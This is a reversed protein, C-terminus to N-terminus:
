CRTARVAPLRRRRRPPLRDPQRHLLHRDVLAGPEPQRDLLGPPADAGAVRTSRKRGPCARRSRSGNTWCWRITRSLAAEFAALAQAPRPRGTIRAGARRARGRPRDHQDGRRFQGRRLRPHRRRLALYDLLANRLARRGASAADPSFPATAPSTQRVAARLAGRQGDAIAAALAERAAFIADPDINTGIERAIDAEGPLALALARFAPELQRTAPSPAPWSPLRAAFEPPKGGRCQRFGAILADTLLTNFAQWRSFPDSDHRPWSARARRARSSRRAHDAGFLRPQAVAVPREAVDIFRVVHRRKRVHIVGDEVAAGEVRAM